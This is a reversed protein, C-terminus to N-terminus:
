LCVRTLPAITHAKVLRKYMQRYGNDEGKAYTISLNGETVSTIEGSAGKQKFSGVMRDATLYVVIQNRILPRFGTKTVEADSLDLWKQATEDNLSAFEPILLRFTELLSL